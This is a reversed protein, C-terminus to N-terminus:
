FFSYREEDQKSQNISGGQRPEPVSAGVSQESLVSSAAEDVKSSVFPNGVLLWKWLIQRKEQELEPDVPTLQLAHDLDALAEEFRNFMRHVVGRVRWFLATTSSLQIARSCSTLAEREKDLDCDLDLYALSLGQWCFAEACHVDREIACAFDAIAEQHRELRALCKGRELYLEACEESSFEADQCRALAETWDQLAEQDRCRESLISARLEYAKCTEYAAPSMALLEELATLAEEYKRLHAYGAARRLRTTTVMSRLDAHETEAYRQIFHSWATITRGWEEESAPDRLLVALPLAIAQKTQQRSLRKRAM